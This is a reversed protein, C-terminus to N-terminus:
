TAGGKLRGVVTELLSGAQKSPFVTGLGVVVLQAVARGRRVYFFDYASDISAGGISFVVRAEFGARRDGITAVPSSRVTLDHPHLKAIGPDSTFKSRLYTEICPPARNSMLVRFPRELDAASPEIVVASVVERIRASSLSQQFLRGRVEVRGPRGRADPVGLCSLLDHETSRDAGTTPARFETYGYPLDRLQLVAHEALITDAATRQSSVRGSDSKSSGSCGAIALVAALVLVARRM